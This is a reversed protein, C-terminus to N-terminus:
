TTLNSASLVWCLGSSTRISELLAFDREADITITTDGAQNIGGTVTIVRSGSAGVSYGVLALKLGVRTPRGLTNTESASAAIVLSIFGIQDNPLAVGDGPDVIEWPCDAWHRPFNHGSM